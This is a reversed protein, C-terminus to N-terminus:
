RGSLAVRADVAHQLAQSPSDGVCTLHGMKRGPRADAKGYLHLHISDNDLVAPWNPEGDAWLDGLLQVMAAPRCTGDGLPLGAVARLQQEFQSAPAAEITCHGSNHPRPAVENVLLGDASDFIEVCLVGVLDWGVAIRHAMDRAAAARDDPISAPVVTTDLIHHVHDNEMVGHDSISGDAGRVVIVSLERDFPVVSEVVLRQGELAAWAADIEGVEDIRMQGKGDYGFRAAKAIVPLGLTTVAAHLSELTDAPRWPAVRVGAQELAVKERQRDQAIAIIDGSPRVPVGAERAREALQPDVNEFEWTIVDAEAILRQIGTEDDFATTIEIESVGGAPTDKAGGTLVAVRYGHQHAVQALMRGLQGGGVVGITAGPLLPGTM